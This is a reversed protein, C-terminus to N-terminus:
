QHFEAGYNCQMLLLLLKRNAGTPRKLQNITVLDRFEKDEEEEEDQESQQKRDALEEYLEEWTPYPDLRKELHQQILMYHPTSDVGHDSDNQRLKEYVFMFGRKELTSVAHELLKPLIAVVQACKQDKTLRPRAHQFTSATTWKKPVTKKRTSM